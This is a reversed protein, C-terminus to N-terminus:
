AAPADGSMKRLLARAKAPDYPYKTVNPNFWKKLAPSVFGDGEQARGAYISKIISPRDIAHAIAQRFKPQSFWKMKKPDVIPKPTFTTAGKAGTITVTAGDFTVNLPLPQGPSFTLTRKQENTGVGTLVLEVANGIVRASRFLM